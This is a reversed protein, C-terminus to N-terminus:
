SRKLKQKKKKSMQRSLLMKEAQRVTVFVYEGTKFDKIRVYIKYSKGAIVVSTQTNQNSTGGGGGRHTNNMNPILYEEKNTDTKKIYVGVFNRNGIRLIVPHNAYTANM